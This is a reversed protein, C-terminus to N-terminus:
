GSRYFVFSIKSDRYNGKYFPSQIEVDKLSDVNALIAIVKDMVASSEKLSSDMNWIQFIDSNWRASVSLGFIEDGITTIWITM